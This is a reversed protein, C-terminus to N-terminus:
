PLAGYDPRADRDTEVLILVDDEQVRVVGAVIKFSQPVEQPKRDSVVRIMGKKLLSLLPAHRPAVEFEGERGPLHVRAALGQFLTSQEELIRVQM